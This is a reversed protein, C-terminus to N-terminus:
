RRGVLGPLGIEGPGVDIDVLGDPLAGAAWEKFAPLVEDRVMGQAGGQTFLYAVLMTGEGDRALVEWSGHDRYPRAMVSLDPLVERLHRALDLAYLEAQRGERRARRQKDRVRQKDRM